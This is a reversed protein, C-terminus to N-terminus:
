NSNENIGEFINGVIKCTSNGGCGVQYLYKYEPQNKYFWRGKTEHWSVEYNGNLYSNPKYARCIDGEYIENGDSDLLGTFQQIVFNSPRDDFFTTPYEAYAEDTINNCPTLVQGYVPNNDSLKKPLCSSHAVLEGCYCFKKLKRDWFRFKFTRM